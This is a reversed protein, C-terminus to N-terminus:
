TTKRYNTVALTLILVAYIGLSFFERKIDPFQSGKLLIMRIVRMFYAAPNLINVKQAWYPMSETPTFVGSMLIFTVIFFIHWKDNAEQISLLLAPVNTSIPVDPDLSLHVTVIVTIVTILTRLSTM